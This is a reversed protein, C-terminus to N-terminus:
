GLVEQELYDTTKEFARNVFTINGELNTIIGANNTQRAINSLMSLEEENNKNKTIDRSNSLVKLFKM